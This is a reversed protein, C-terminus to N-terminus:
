AAVAGNTVNGHWHGCASCDVSPWLTLTDYSAGDRSWRRGENHGLDMVNSEIPPGGDPPNAFLVAITPAGEIQHCHPCAFSIGVIRDGRVIWDAFHDVLRNSAFATM